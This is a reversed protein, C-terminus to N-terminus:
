SRCNEVMYDIVSRITPWEAPDIQITQETATQRDDQQVIRVYEGAAEDQTEVHTARECFIAEGRPVITVRTIKVERFEDSVPLDVKVGGVIPCRCGSNSKESTHIRGTDVSSEAIRRRKTESKGQRLRRSLNGFTM